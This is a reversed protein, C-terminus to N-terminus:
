IQSAYFHTYYAFVKPISFLMIPVNRLMISEPWAIHVLILKM